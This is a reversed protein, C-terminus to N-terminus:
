EADTPTETKSNLELWDRGKRTVFWSGGKSAYGNRELRRAAGVYAVCRDGSINSGRNIARLVKAEFETPERYTVEKTPREM